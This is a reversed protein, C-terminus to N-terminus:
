NSLKLQGKSGKSAKTTVLIMLEAEAPVAASLSTSETKEARALISGSQKGTLIDTRADKENKALFVYINAPGTAILDIKITQEKKLAEVTFTNEEGYGLEFPMERNLVSAKCGGVTLLCALLALALAFQRNM